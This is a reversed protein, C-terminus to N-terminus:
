ALQDSSRFHDDVRGAQRLGDPVCMGDDRAARDVEAALDALALRDDLLEVRGGGLDDDRQTRGAALGLM